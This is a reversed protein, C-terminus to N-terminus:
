PFFNFIQLVLLLLINTVWPHKFFEFAATIRGCPFFSSTGNRIGNVFQRGSFSLLLTYNKINGFPYNGFTLFSLLAPDSYWVLSFALAKCCLSSFFFGYAAKLLSESKIYLLLSFMACIVYVLIVCFFILLAVFLM